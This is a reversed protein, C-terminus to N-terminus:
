DMLRQTKSIDAFILPVDYGYRNTHEQGEDVCSLDLGEAALYVKLLDRVVVPVGSAVHYVEGTNGLTAIARVQAAAHEFTIYDRSASLPGLKIRALEGRKYSHIMRQLRGVFLRDSLGPGDLNFVRAMVVDLGRQVFVNMLMTQSAKTWGYVTVPSLCRLEKLPNDEPNVIGYEAASGILVVRTLRSNKEITELLLRATNVNVAFSEEFDSSISGALHIIMDPRIKEILDEVLSRVRLDCSICKDSVNHRIDTQYVVNGPVDEFASIVSPGFAGAAGTVLIRKM